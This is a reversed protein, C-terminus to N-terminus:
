EIQNKLLVPREQYYFRFIRTRGDQALALPEVKYPTTHVTYDQIFPHIYSRLDSVGNCSYLRPGRLKM